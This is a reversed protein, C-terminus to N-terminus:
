AATKGLEQSLRHHPEATTSSSRTKVGIANIVDVTNKISPLCHNHNILCPLIDFIRMENIDLSWGVFLIIEDVNKRKYKVATKYTTYWCRFTAFIGLFLKSYIRIFQINWMRVCWFIKWITLYNNLTLYRWKLM